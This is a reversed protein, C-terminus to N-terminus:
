LPGNLGVLEKAGKVQTRSKYKQCETLLVCEKKAVYSARYREVGLSWEDMGFLSPGWIFGNRKRITHQIGNEYSVIYKKFPPFHRAVCKAYKGFINSEEKM